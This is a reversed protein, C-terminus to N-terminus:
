NSGHRNDSASYAPPPVGETDIEIYGRTTLEGVFHKEKRSFMTTTAISTTPSSCVSNSLEHAFPPPHITLPESFEWGGDSRRHAVRMAEGPIHTFRPAEEDVSFPTVKSAPHFRDLVQSCRGADEQELEMVEASERKHRFYFFALGGILLTLVVAVTAGVAAATASASDSM